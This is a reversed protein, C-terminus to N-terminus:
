DDVVVRYFITEDATPSKRIIQVIDEVNANLEVIAPDKKQIRPLQSVTLNFKALIEMAKEKSLLIHKPVLIYKGIEFETEM